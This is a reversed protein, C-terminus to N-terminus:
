IYKNVIKEVAYPLESRILSIGDCYMEYLRDSLEGDEDLVLMAALYKAAVSAFRELLPFDEDLPIWVEHFSGKSPSGMVKRLLSDMECVENCFAAILYPAREEYDMNEDSMESQALLNLASAYIDRNKM